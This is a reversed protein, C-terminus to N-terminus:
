RRPPQIIIRVLHGAPLALAHHNGDRKGAVWLQQDGIFRGRRQIHGNLRLDEIQQHIQTIFEAHRDHDDRMIHAHNRFRCVAHQHHIRPTHNLFRRHRPNKVM